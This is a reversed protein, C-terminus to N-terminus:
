KRKVPINRTKAPQQRRLEFELCNWKLTLKLSQPKVWQFGVFILTIVLVVGVIMVVAPAIDL